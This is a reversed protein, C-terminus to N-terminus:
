NGGPSLVGPVPPTLLSAGTISLAAASIVVCLTPQSISLEIQVSGSVTYPAQLQTQLSLTYATPTVNLPLRWDLWHCEPLDEARLNSQGLSSVSNPVDAIIIVLISLLITGLIVSAMVCALAFLKRQRRSYRFLLLDHVYCGSLIVM